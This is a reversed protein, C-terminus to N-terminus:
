EQNLAEIPVLKSAKLAPYFGFLTGTLVAFLLALIASATTPLVTMFNGVVPM